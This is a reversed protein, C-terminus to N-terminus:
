YRADSPGMFSNLPAILVSNKREADGVERKKQQQPGVTWGTETEIEKPCTVPSAAGNQLM